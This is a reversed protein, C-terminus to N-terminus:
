SLRDVLKFGAWIALGANLFSAPYDGKSQFVASNITWGVVGVVLLAIFALISGIVFWLM